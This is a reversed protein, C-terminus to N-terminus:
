IIIDVIFESNNINVKFNGGHLMVISKAIDLGLGSGDTNRSSDGRRFREVVEEGTINLLENSTNKFTVRTYYGSEFEISEEQELKIIVNSNLASYKLINSLINHFVRMVKNIDVYSEKFEKDEKNIIVEFNLSSEIIKDEFELLSEKLISELKVKSKELKIEGNNNETSEKLDEILTRLRRSKKDLIDIYDERDKSSIDKRMLFNVYNIISTLPTRLDHSINAILEGKSIQSKDSKYSENESLQIIEEVANITIELYSSKIELNEERLENIKEKAINYNEKSVAELIEKLAEKIMGRKICNKTNLFALYMFISINFIVIWWLIARKIHIKNITFQFFVQYLTIYFVVLIGLKIFRSLLKYKYYDVEVKSLTTDTTYVKNKTILQIVSVFVMIAFTFWTLFVIYKNAETNYNPIFENGTTHVLKRCLFYNILVLAKGLFSEIFVKESLTKVKNAESDSIWRSCFKKDSIAKNIM